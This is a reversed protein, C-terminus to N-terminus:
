HLERLELIAPAKSKREGTGPQAGGRRLRVRGRTRKGRGEHGEGREHGGREPERRSRMGKERTYEVERKEARSEARERQREGHYAKLNAARPPAGREM